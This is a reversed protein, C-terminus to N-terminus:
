RAGDPIPRCLNRLVQGSRPLDQKSIVSDVYKRARQVRDSHSEHASCAVLRMRPLRSRMAELVTGSDIDPLELDVIALDFDGTELAAIASAGDRAVHGIEFREGALIAQMMEAAVDNDEVLLVRLTQNEATM